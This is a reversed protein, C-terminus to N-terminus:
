KRDTRTIVVNNELILKLFECYIASRILEMGSGDLFFHRFQPLGAVVEEM